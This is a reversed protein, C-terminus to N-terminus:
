VQYKRAFLMLVQQFVSYNSEAVTANEVIPTHTGSSLETIRMQQALEFSSTQSLGLDLLVLDYGEKFLDLAENPQNIATCKAGLIQLMIQIMQRLLANEEILLIRPIHITSSTYTTM